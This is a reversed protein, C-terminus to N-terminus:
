TGLGFLEITNRTTAECIEELSQCRVRAVHEAVHEVFAPENRKGRQPVPALFPADTEVLLRNLPIKELTVNIASSPDQTKRLPFTAIGNVGIHMGLDLLPKAEEWTGTFSHIVGRMKMGNSQADQLIEALRPLAERCHIVLPLGLAHAVRIHERFVREQTAYATAKDIGEDIRYFDLGCEGIAVCKKDRAIELLAESDLDHEHVTGEEPDEYSSTTHEPHLGATAWIDEHAHSFALAVRSNAVSTGVTIGGIGRDHMRSLVVDLDSAYSPFHLHCHSDILYFNM